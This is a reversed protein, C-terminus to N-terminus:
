GRAKRLAGPLATLSGATLVTVSSIGHLSTAAGQVARIAIVRVGLPFAAGAARLDAPTPVPGCLLLAVSVAPAAAAVRRATAVIGDEADSAPRGGIAGPGADVWEVGALEDLVRRPTPTRVQLQGASLTLARDERFSQVALSAAAQVALEFEDADAYEAARTSLAVAVHSRRTEEFQRVMLEGTRASSRWAINRRDDGPVYGRLGHFSLDDSALDTSPEGELDRFFGPMAGALPVTAPHVYLLQPETWRVERRVLGFADGRVSRAPGVTLVARRLTPIQFLEDHMAGPALAPISLRGVAAGVPLEMRSPLMRRNSASTVTIEGSAPEGVVVRATSLDLEVRYRSRGIAFVLAVVFAAALAVAAVTFEQWGGMSGLLYLTAAAGLTLWGLPTIAALPGATFIGLVGAGRAAVPGAAAGGSRVPEAM